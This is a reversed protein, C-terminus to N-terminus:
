MYKSFGILREFALMLAVIVLIQLTSIAAVVPKASFEVYQYIRIPLPTFEATSLFISVIVNDFSIIFAFIAGAMLGSKILPVTIMRTTTWRNAGLSMAAEELSRDFGALTATVARVVYPTTIIVHALLLRGLSPGMGILAMFQLLAVGTVIGPLLLPSLVLTSVLDRGPFHFRVLAFSCLAGLATAISAAFIGLWLSLWLSEIFETKILMEEYWRLSWGQPPFAIYTSPTFSVLVVIVIPAVLYLYVFANIAKLLWGVVSELVAVPSVPSSAPIRAAAM